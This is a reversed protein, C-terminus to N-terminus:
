RFRRPRKNLADIDAQTIEYPKFIDDALRRQEEAEEDTIDLFVQGDEERWVLMVPCNICNFYWGIDHSREQEKNCVPCEDVERGEPEDDVEEWEDNM